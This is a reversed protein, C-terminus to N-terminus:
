LLEKNKSYSKRLSIYSFLFWFFGTTIGFGIIELWGNIKNSLGNSILYFVMFISAFIGTKIFINKLEKKYSSLTAIDTYEIGSLIYRLFVYTIFLAIALFIAFEVDIQFFSIYRSSIFIFLLAVILIVAGEALFYLLKKEKYEDEPLLLSIWSKM